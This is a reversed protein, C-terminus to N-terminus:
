YKTQCFFPKINKEDLNYYSNMTKRLDSYIQYKDPIIIFVSKYPEKSLAEIEKDLYLKTENIYNTNQNNM